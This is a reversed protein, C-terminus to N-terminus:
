KKCRRDIQKEEDWYEGAQEKLTCPSNKREKILISYNEAQSKGNWRSLMYADSWCKECCMKIGGGAIRTIAAM